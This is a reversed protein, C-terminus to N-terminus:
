KSVASLVVNLSFKKSFKAISESLQTAGAGVRLEQWYLKGM